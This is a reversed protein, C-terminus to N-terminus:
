RGDRQCDEKDCACEAKPSSELLSTESILWRQALVHGSKDIVRDGENSEKSRIKYTKLDRVAIDMSSIM